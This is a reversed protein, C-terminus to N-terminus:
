WAPKFDRMAQLASPADRIVAHMEIKGTGTCLYTELYTPQDPEVTINVTVPIRGAIVKQLFISEEQGEFRYYPVPDITIVHAGVSMESTLYEGKLLDGAVIGDVAVSPKFSNTDFTPFSCPSKSLRYIYLAPARSTSEGVRPGVVQAALANSSLWERVQETITDFPKFQATGTKLAKGDRDFAVFLLHSAVLPEVGFAAAGPGGLLWVLKGKSVTWMYVYVLQPGLNVIPEGLRATIDLSNEGSLVISRVEDEAIAQGSVVTEKTAPVPIAVCGAILAALSAFVLGRIRTSLSMPM